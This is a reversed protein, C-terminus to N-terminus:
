VKSQCSNTNCQKTVTITLDVSFFNSIIIIVISTFIKILLARAM